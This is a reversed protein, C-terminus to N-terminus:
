MGRKAQPEAYKLGIYGWMESLKIAADERNFPGGDIRITESDKGDPVHLVLWVDFLTSPKNVNDDETDPVLVIQIRPADVYNRAKVM